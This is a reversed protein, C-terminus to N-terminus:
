MNSSNLLLIMNTEIMSELLKILHFSMKTLEKSGYTVLGREAESDGHQIQDYENLQPM